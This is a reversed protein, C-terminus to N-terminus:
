YVAETLNSAFLPDRLVVLTAGRADGPVSDPFYNVTYTDGEIRLGGVAQVAFGASSYNNEGIDSPYGENRFYAWVWAVYGEPNTYFIQSQDPFRPDPRTQSETVVSLVAPSQARSHIVYDRLDTSNIDKDKKAIKIGFSPDYVNQLVPPEVFPYARSQELNINYARILLRMPDALSYIFFHNKGIYFNMFEDLRAYKRPSDEFNSGGTLFYVQTFPFFDLGHEIKYIATGSAPIDAIAEWAIALSPWESNFLFQYSGAQLVDIGPQSIQIAPNSSPEM